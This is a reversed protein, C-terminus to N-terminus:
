QSCRKYAKDRPLATLAYLVNGGVDLDCFVRYNGVRLTWVRYKKIYKMFHEPPIGLTNVKNQIDSLRRKIQDATEPNLKKLRKECTPKVIVRFNM